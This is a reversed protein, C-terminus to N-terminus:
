EGMDVYFPVNVTLNNVRKQILEKAETPKGDALLDYVEEILKVCRQKDAMVFEWDSRAVYESTNM